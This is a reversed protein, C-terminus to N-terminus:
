TDDEDFTPLSAQPMATTRHPVANEPHLANWDFAFDYISAGSQASWSPGMEEEVLKEFDWSSEDAQPLGGAQHVTDSDVPFTSSSTELQASWSPGLLEKELTELTWSSEHTQPLGDAQHLADSDVPFTSSSAEPQASWSPGLLEEALTELTWSSEHAQPLGSAQHPADSDVPFTSSSAEPQVSWSPAMLEDALTEFDLDSQPPPQFGDVEDLADWDFESIPSSAEPQAPLSPEAVREAPTDPTLVNEPAQPLGSPLTSPLLSSCASGSPEATSGLDPLQVNSPCVQRVQMLMHRLVSKYGLTKGRIYLNLDDDLMPEHLRSAMPAKDNNHLWASFHRVHASLMDAYKERKISTTERGPALLAAKFQESLQRDLDHAQRKNAQDPSQVDSPYMERVQTLMNGIARTDRPYKADKFLNFDEDLTPAHLRTAMSAKKKAKLWASFTHMSGAMKGSYTEGNAYKKEPGSASFAISLAYQYQEKLQRDVDSIERKNSRVNSQVAPREGRCFARLKRLALFVTYVSLREKEILFTNADGELSQSDLRGPACLGEKHAAHLWESFARLETLYRRSIASSADNILQADGAPTLHRPLTSITVTGHSEVSRLHTLAVTVNTRGTQRQFEEADRTLEDQSLRDKLGGKKQQKLWASFSILLFSYKKATNVNSGGKEAGDLFGAILEKDASYSLDADSSGTGRPIPVKRKRGFTSSCDVPAPREEHIAADEFAPQQATAEQSEPADARWLPSHHLPRSPPPSDDPLASSPSPISTRNRAPHAGLGPASRAASVETRRRKNPRATLEGLVGFPASSSAMGAPAAGPSAPRGTAQEPVSQYTSQAHTRRNSSKPRVM